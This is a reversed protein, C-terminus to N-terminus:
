APKWGSKLLKEWRGNEWRTEIGKRVKPCPINETVTEISQTKGGDILYLDIHQYPATRLTYIGSYRDYRPTVEQGEYFSLDIRQSIKGIPWHCISMKPENYMNYLSRICWKGQCKVIKPNM